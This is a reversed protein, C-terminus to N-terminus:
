GKVIPTKGPSCSHMNFRKLIRNIYTRQSLRLIGNTMDRRIQIELSPDKMHFHSFLLQKTEFLLDTDNSVLLIDDVYLVQFIFSRGSVKMYICQDVVNEKFDNIIGIMDFKLYWKRSSQKLGYISKKLKCVIYEKGNMEFGVPQTLYVHEYLDGNLFATRMDMQNLELDFQAVIVM